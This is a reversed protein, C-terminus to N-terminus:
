DGVESRRRGERWGPQRELFADDAPGEPFVKHPNLIGNPDLMGKLQRMLNFELESHERTAHDRKLAGLGHEGSISGGLEVAAAFLRAAAPGVLDRQGDEFVFSPHLNGDGAHGVVPIRLGTEAALRHVRDLMEPISAIPVSVDEAFFNKPM